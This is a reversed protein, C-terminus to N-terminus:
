RHPSRAARVFLLSRLFPFLAHLSLQTLERLLDLLDAKSCLLLLFDLTVRLAADLSRLSAAFAVPEPSRSPVTTGVFLSFRDDFFASRALPPDSAYFSKKSDFFPIHFCM